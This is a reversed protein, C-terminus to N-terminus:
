DGTTRADKQKNGSYNIDSEKKKSIAGSCSSLLSM